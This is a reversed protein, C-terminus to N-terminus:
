RYLGTLNEMRLFIHSNNIINHFFTESLLSHNDHQSLYYQYSKFINNQMNSKTIPQM